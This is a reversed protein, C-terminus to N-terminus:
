GYVTSSRIRLVMSLLRATLMGSGNWNWLKADPAFHHYRPQGLRLHPTWSRANLPHRTRSHLCVGNIMRSLGTGTHLQRDADTQTFDNLLIEFTQSSGGKGSVTYRLEEPADEMTRSSCFQLIALFADISHTETETSVPGYNLNLYSM